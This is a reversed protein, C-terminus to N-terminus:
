ISFFEAAIIQPSKKSPKADPIRNLIAKMQNQLQM